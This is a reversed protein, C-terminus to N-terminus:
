EKVEKIVEKIEDPMPDEDKFEKLKMECLELLVEDQAMALLMNKHQNELQKKLDMWDQKIIEM